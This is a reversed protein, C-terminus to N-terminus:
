SVSSSGIIYFDIKYDGAVAGVTPLVDSLNIIYGDIRKNFITYLM